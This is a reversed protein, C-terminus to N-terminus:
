SLLCRRSEYCVHQSSRTIPTCRRTSSRLTSAARRSATCRRSSAGGSSAARPCPFIRTTQLAARSSVTRRPPSHRRPPHSIDAHSPRDGVLTDWDSEPPPDVQEYVFLTGAGPPGIEELPDTKPMTEHPTSYVGLSILGHCGSSEIDCFHRFSTSSSLRRSVVYVDGVTTSCRRYVATWRRESAGCM